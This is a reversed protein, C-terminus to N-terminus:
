SNGFNSGSQLTLVHSPRTAKFTFRQLSKYENNERVNNRLESQLFVGIVDTMGGCMAVKSGGLLIEHFKTSLKTLVQQCIGIKNLIPCSYNASDTLVQM